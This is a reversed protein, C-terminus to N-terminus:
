AIRCGMDRIWAGAEVTPTRSPGRSPQHITGCVATTGARDSPRRRWRDPLRGKGM